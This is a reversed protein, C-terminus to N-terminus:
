KNKFIVYSSTFAIMLALFIVVGLIISSKTDIIVNHNLTVGQTGVLQDLM